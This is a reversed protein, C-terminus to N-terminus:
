KPILQNWNVIATVFPPTDNIQTSVGFRSGDASAVYRHRREFQAFAITQFLTVPNGPGLGAATSGIPVAMMKRDLSLYFLEKGDKRWRPMTGGESSIKWKGQEPSPFSQIYIEYKGSEDSAYAVWKADPSIQGHAEVFPSQLFPFPKSDKQLPLVWLDSGTSGEHVIYLLYRGDASWDLPVKDMSSKVLLEPKKTGIASTRYLDGDSYIIETGDPSWVPDDAGSFTFRSMMGRSSDHIWIDQIGTQSDTRALALRAGDPSLEPDGYEGPDALTETQKGSRDYWVM